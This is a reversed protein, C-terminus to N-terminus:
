SLCVEGCRKREKRPNGRVEMRLYGFPITMIKCKLFSAYRQIRRVVKSKYFNVKLGSVLEFCRLLGELVIVNLFTAEGLFLTDGVFQLLNVQVKNTGVRRSEFMDKEM